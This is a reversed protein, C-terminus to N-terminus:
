DAMVRILLHNCQWVDLSCCWEWPSNLWKNWVEEKYSSQEIIYIMWYTNSVNFRQSCVPASHTQHCHRQVAKLTLWTYVTHSAPQPEPPLAPRDSILDTSKSEQELPMDSTRPCSSSGWISIFTYSHIYTHGYKHNMLIMCVSLAGWGKFFSAIIEGYISQLVSSKSASLKAQQVRVEMKKRHHGNNSERSEVEECARVERRRRACFRCVCVRVCALAYVHVGSLLFIESQTWLDLLQRTRVSINLSSLRLLCLKNLAALLCCM